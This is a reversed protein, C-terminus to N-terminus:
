RPVRRSRGRLHTRRGVAYRANILPEGYTNRRLTHQLESINGKERRKTAVVLLLHCCPAISRSPGFDGPELSLHRLTPATERGTPTRVTGSRTVSSPCRNWEPGAFCAHLCYM